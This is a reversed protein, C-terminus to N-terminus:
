LNEAICCFFGVFFLRFMDFDVCETIELLILSEYHKLIM